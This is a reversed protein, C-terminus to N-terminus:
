RSLPGIPANHRPAIGAAIWRSRSLASWLPMAPLIENARALSRIAAALDGKRRNTEGLRFYVDGAM